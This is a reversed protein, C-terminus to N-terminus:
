DYSSVGFIKKNLVGCCISRLVAAKLSITCVQSSSSQNIKKENKRTISCRHFSISLPFGFYEPFFRDWHWKTWWLDWLSQGPDFGPRRQSIGAFLRRLVAREYKKTCIDHISPPFHVGWESM